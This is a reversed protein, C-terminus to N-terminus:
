DKSEVDAFGSLSMLYAKQTLQWIVGIGWYFEHVTTLDNETKRTKAEGEISHLIIKHGKKVPWNPFRYINRTSQSFDGQQNISTDSVMYIMLNTDEIATFHIIELHSEVKDIKLAPTLDM